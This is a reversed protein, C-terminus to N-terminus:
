RGEDETTSDETALSDAALSDAIWVDMVDDGVGGTLVLVHTAAGPHVRPVLWVSKRWTGEEEAVSEVEGIPIGRPYHGGLDSTVVLAGPAVTENFPIGNLLLRDEERFRGQRSQVLGYVSGDALMASARFDPHSWDMGVSSRERVERIVGILGSPSVVPSGSVIGDRAGLDVLFMSESGPTGPRMVTAPLYGPGAREAIDLLSRLTRNEHLLISHTSLRASLSDVLTLLSDVQAAGIRARELREQTAIFPRLVSVQFAGSIRQQSPESLFSTSLALLLVFGAGLLGRGRGNSDTGDAYAAL